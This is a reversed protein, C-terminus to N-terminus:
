APREEEQAARDAFDLILQAVRHPDDLQPCHGSEPLIVLESGAVGEHLRRGASPPILRDRAGHVVLMPCHVQDLEYGSDLEDLLARGTRALQLAARSNPVLAAFRAVVAPDAARRSGYLLSPMVLGAGRRLVGAPMPLRLAADTLRPSWQVSRNVLARFGLGPVAIPVAAAVPLGSNQSARVTLGAGLSNGVLVVAGGGAHTTVLEAVVRDLQPLTPGPEAADAQGFGVLDVAVGARGYAELCELVPRWTEASDSFGHLLILPPGDGAVALENTWYGAYRRRRQEIM